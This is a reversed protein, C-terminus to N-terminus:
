LAYLVELDKCSSCNGCPQDLGKECSYTLGIPICDAKCFEWIEQKNLDIFPAGIKIQGNTYIDYIKQMQAIFMASCDSYGTGTHIGLAITGKSFPFSMLGTQLLFGNRGLIFGSDWPGMGSVKLINLEVEFFNCIQQAAVLEKHRALQEYDIFLADVQNQQKRYFHLVATSDIGGSLLIRVHHESM